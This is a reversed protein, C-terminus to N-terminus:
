LLWQEPVCLEGGYRTDNLVKPDFRVIFWPNGLTKSNALNCKKEQVVKVQIFGASEKGPIIMRAEQGVEGNWTRQQGAYLAKVRRPLESKCVYLRVHANNAARASKKAQRSLNDRHKRCRYTSAAFKFHEEYRKVYQERLEANALVLEADTVEQHRKTFGAEQQPTIPQKLRKKEADIAKHKALAKAKIIRDSTTGPDADIVTFFGFKKRRSPKLFKRRQGDGGLRPGVAFAGQKIGVM